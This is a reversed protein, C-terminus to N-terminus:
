PARPKTATGKEAKQLRASWRAVCLLTFTQQSHKCTKLGAHNIKLKYNGPRLDTYVFYGESSGITTRIQGTDVNTLEIQSDAIVAQSGDVATGTISATGQAFAQGVGAVSFLAACFASIMLWQFSAKM